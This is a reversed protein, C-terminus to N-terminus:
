KKRPIISCPKWKIVFVDVTYLTGNIFEQTIYENSFFSYNETIETRDFITIGRSCCSIRKRKIFKTNNTNIFESYNMINHPIYIGYKSMEQTAFYKDKFSLVSENM